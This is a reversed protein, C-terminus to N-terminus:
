FSGWPECLHGTPAQSLLCMSGQKLRVLQAKIQELCQAQHAM